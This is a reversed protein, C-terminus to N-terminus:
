ALISKIFKTLTGIDLNKENGVFTVAWAGCIAGYFGIIEIPAGIRSLLSTVAFVVDGAGVRDKVFPALAPAKFISNELGYIDLGAGGNTILIQKLGSKMKIQDIFDKLDLNQHRAEQYAEAGNLSIFNIKQYRNISNFGRNGANVQTNVAIFKDANELSDIIKNTILGHGYDAVIIADISNLKKSFLKLLNSELEENLPSDDMKYLELIRNSTRNDVLREKTITPKPSQDIFEISVGKDLLNKIVPLEIDNKNIGTIVSTEIQLGKINAAIALVGGPYSFSQGKNFCLIPEKASKGLAECYTYKDIITEGIILIKLERLRDLWNLIVVTSYKKKLNNIWVQVENSYNPLFKNILNSSSFTIEDTFIIKGGLSEIKEKEKTINGTRDTEENIYDSGKVYFDPKIIEIIEIASVYNTIVVFDISTLNSLVEARLKENFIPRGPGKNVFEDSTISVVLVDAFEKAKAFHRFHGPHLLDFVGHCLAISKGQDSLNKFFIEADDISINKNIM